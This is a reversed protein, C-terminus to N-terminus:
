VEVWTGSWQGTTYDADMSYVRGTSGLAYVHMSSGITVSTLAKLGSGGLPSWAGTWNGAAYDGETAWMGGDSGIINLHVGNGTASAAVTSGSGSVAAIADVIRQADAAQPQYRDPYASVQVKQCVVGISQSQWSGNPYAKLMANLFSNTAYAPDLRQDVTGWWDQQQFLGVSTADLKNPNNRLDSEVIATTLAIVAARDPLGRTRTANVIARACSVRYANMYGALKGTMTANLTTAATSDADTVTGCTRDPLLAYAPTATVVAPITLAAATALAPLISRLRTKM